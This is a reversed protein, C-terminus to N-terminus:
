VCETLSIRNQSSVQFSIIHQERQAGEAGQVKAAAARGTGSYGEVTGGGVKKRWGVSGIRM